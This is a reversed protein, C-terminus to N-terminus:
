VTTDMERIERRLIKGAANKPLCNKFFVKKPKKYSAISGECVNLIDKEDLRCGEKAVIFASVVEGWKDDPLGVVAVERVSPHSLIVEEIESPFINVGGSIIMDKKRDVIYLFGEEDLYGMDGSTAWDERFNKETAEPNKYYEAGLLLGKKYIEGVEGQSVDNGEEDLIRIQMGYFPLGCSRNKRFQDKPKIITWFGHETSGLYDYLNANSFYEMVGEKVKTLLPSGSCILIRMSSIDYDDKNPTNLIENYMTPVMPTVTIREQEIISLVLNPEFKDTIYITGGVSLQQLGFIFGLGHYFPGSILQYDDGLIGFEIPIRRWHEILSRHTTLAAKPPGTTGGTLGLWLYDNEDALIDVNRDDKENLLEEYNAINSSGIVIINEKPIQTEESIEQYVSLLNDSIVMAKADSHTIAYKLERALFRYSIPAVVAGLKSLGYIIEPYEGCNYIYTVVKDGIDVKFNEKMVRAVQNSRQNLQEWTISFGDNCKVATKNKTDHKEGFYEPIEGVTMQNFNKRM